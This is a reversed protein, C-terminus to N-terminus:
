LQSARIAAADDEILAMAENAARGIQAVEPPTKSENGPSFPSFAGTPPDAAINFDTPRRGRESAVIVWRDVIPDKRLESM